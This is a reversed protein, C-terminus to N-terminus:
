RHKLADTWGNLTCSFLKQQRRAYTSESSMNNGSWKLSVPEFPEDADSVYYQEIKSLSAPVDTDVAKTPPASSSKASAKSVGSNQNAQDLFSSYADDSSMTQRPPKLRDSRVLHWNDSKIATLNGAEYRKIGWNSTTSLTRNVYYSLDRPKSRFRGLLQKVSVQCM